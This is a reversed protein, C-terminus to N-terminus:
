PVRRAFALQAGAFCLLSFAALPLIVSADLAGRDFIRTFDEIDALRYFSAHTAEMVLYLAFELVMVLLAGFAIATPHSGLASVLFTASYLAALFTSEHLSATFWPGVSADEKVFSLLWPISASTAVIPVVVALLGAVYRESLLRLRSFPLALWIELTGRHVEGAVASAAFIAAAAGGLLHCGKFFHQFIVYGQAGKSAMAAVMGGMVKGPVLRLIAPVNDRFQPWYLVAAVLMLELVLGYALARVLVARLERRM